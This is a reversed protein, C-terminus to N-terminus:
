KKAKKSSKNFAESKKNWELRALGDMKGLEELRVLAYNVRAKQRRDVDKKGQSLNALDAKASQYNQNAELEEKVQKMSSSAEIIVKKLAEEAMADMEEVTNKGLQKAVKELNM